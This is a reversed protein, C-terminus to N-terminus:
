SNACKKLLSSLNPYTEHRNEYKSMEKILILFDLSFSHVDEYAGELAWESTLGGNQKFSRLVPGVSLSEM